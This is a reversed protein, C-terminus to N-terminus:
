EDGRKGRWMDWHEPPPYRWGKHQCYEHAEMGSELAEEKMAELWDDDGYAGPYNYSLIVVASWPTLKRRRM